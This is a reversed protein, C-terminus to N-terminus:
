HNSKVNYYFSFSFKLYTVTALAQYVPAATSFGNLTVVPNLVKATGVSLKIGEANTYTYALTIATLSFAEGVLYDTKLYPAYEALAEPVCLAPDIAELVLRFEHGEYFAPYSALGPEGVTIGLSTLSVYHLALSVENGDLGSLSAFIPITTDGHAIVSYPRSEGHYYVDGSAFIHVKMVGYILTESSLRYALLLYGDGPSSISFVLRLAPDSLYVFHESGDSELFRIPSANMALLESLSTGEQLYLINHDITAKGTSSYLYLSQNPDLGVWTPIVTYGFVFHSVKNHHADSLSFSGSHFGLADTPAVIASIVYNDTSDGSDFLELDFRKADISAGKVIRPEILYIGVQPPNLTPTFLEALHTGLSSLYGQITQQNEKKSLDLDKWGLIKSYLESYSLGVSTFLNRLSTQEAASLEQFAKDYLALLPGIPNLPTEGSAKKLANLETESFHYAINALLRVLAAMMDASILDEKSKIFSLMEDIYTTNIARSSSRVEKQASVAAEVLGLATQRLATWSSATIRFSRLLGGVHNILSVPNEKIQDFAKQLDSAYDLDGKSLRYALAGLALHQEEVSFVKLFASVLGHLARGLMLALRTDMEVTGTSASPQYSVSGDFYSAYAAFQSLFDPRNTGFAALVAQYDSPKDLGFVFPSTSGEHMSIQQALGTAEKIFYGIQDGGILNLAAKADSLVTTFEINAAELSVAQMGTQFHRAGDILLDLQDGNLYAKSILNRIAAVEEPDLDSISFARAGALNAIAVIHDDSVSVPTYIVPPVTLDVEPSTPTSTESTGSPLSSTEGSSTLSGGQSSTSSLSVGGCGSLSVLSFALTLASVAMRRTKM